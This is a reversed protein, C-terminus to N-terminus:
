YRNVLYQQFSWLGKLLLQMPDQTDGAWDPFCFAICPECHSTSAFLDGAIRM